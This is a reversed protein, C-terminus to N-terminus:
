QAGKFAFLPFHDIKQRQLPLGSVATFYLSRKRKMAMESIKRLIILPVWQIWQDNDQDANGTMQFYRPRLHM